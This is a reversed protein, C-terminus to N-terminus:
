LTLEINPTTGRFHYSLSASGLDPKGGVLGRFGPFSTRCVFPVCAHLPNRPNGCKLHPTKRRKSFSVAHTQPSPHPSPTLLPFSFIHYKRDTLALLFYRFAPFNHLRVSLTLFAVKLTAMAKEIKQKKKMTKKNVSSAHLM